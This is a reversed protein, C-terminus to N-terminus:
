ILLLVQQVALTSDMEEFSEDPWNYFDQQLFFFIIFGISYFSPSLFFPVACKFTLACLHLSLEYLELFSCRLLLLM